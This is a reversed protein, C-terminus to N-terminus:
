EALLTLTEDKYKSANPGNNRRTEKITDRKKEIKVTQPRTDTM